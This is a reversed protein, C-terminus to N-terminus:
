EEEKEAEEEVLGLAVCAGGVEERAFMHNCVVQAGWIKQVLHYSTGLM